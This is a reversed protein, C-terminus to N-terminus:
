KLLVDNNKLGLNLKYGEKALLLIQARKLKRVATKGKTTIRQLERIELESLNVTYKTSM